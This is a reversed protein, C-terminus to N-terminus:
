TMWLTFANQVQWQGDVRILCFLVGVAFQPFPRYVAYLLAQGGDQSVVPRTVHLVGAHDDGTKTPSHLGRETPISDPVPLARPELNADILALRFDRPVGPRADFDLDFSTSVIIEGAGSTMEGCDDTVTPRRGDPCFWMVADDIKPPERGDASGAVLDVRVADLIARQEIDTAVRSPFLPPAQAPLPLALWLSVGLGAAAVVAFLGSFLAVRGWRM